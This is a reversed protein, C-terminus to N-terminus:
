AAVTCFARFDGSVRGDARVIRFKWDARQGLVMTFLATNILPSVLPVATVGSLFTKGRWPGNFFNRTVNQPRGHLVYLYADDEGAWDMTDDFTITVQQTAVSATVSLTGDKAPLNLNVPGDAVAAGGIDGIITNSRVYQNFGTLHVTEGLRNQMAVAAAYTNWAGRQLATLTERWAEAFFTMFSRMENQRASNPNVPKTRPRIYNGFRNRAHVDGAISGSMQVIGAGYKVLAFRYTHFRGVGLMSIMEPNIIRHM